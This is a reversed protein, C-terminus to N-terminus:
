LKYTYFRLTLRINCYLSTLQVDEKEKRRWPTIILKLVPVFKGKDKGFVILVISELLILNTIFTAGVPSIAFAHLIIAPLDLLYFM